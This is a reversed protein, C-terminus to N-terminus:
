GIWAVSDPYGNYRGALKNFAGSSADIQDKYKGVPFVEAEDLFAKAFSGNVLKINGSQWQAAFPEARLEKAGTVKDAEAVFGSLMRISAEASEKGGSGPEQELYIRTEPYMQQDLHATQLIVRERDLASWQGRRIDAVCFTGDKMKLM